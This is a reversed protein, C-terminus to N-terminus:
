RTGASALLHACESWAVVGNDDAVDVRGASLWARGKPLSYSHFQDRLPTAIRWQELTSKRLM